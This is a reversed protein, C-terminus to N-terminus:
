LSRGPTQQSLSRGLQNRPTSQSGFKQAASEGSHTVGSDKMVQGAERAQALSASSMDQIRGYKEAASM